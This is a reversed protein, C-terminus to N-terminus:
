KTELYEIEWTPHYTGVRKQNEMRVRLYAGRSGVIVGEHALLQNGDPTFRLRGGCKAPVKYTDRIYRM